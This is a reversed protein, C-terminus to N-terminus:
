TEIQIEKGYFWTSVIESSILHSFLNFLIAPFQLSPEFRQLKHRACLPQSNWRPCQMIGQADSPHGPTAWLVVPGSCYWMMSRLCVPPWITTWANWYQSFYGEPEGESRPSDRSQTYACTHTCVYVFVCCLVWGSM